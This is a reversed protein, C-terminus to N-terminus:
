QEPVAPPPTSRANPASPKPPSRDRRDTTWLNCRRRNTRRRIAPWLRSNKVSLVCRVRRNFDPLIRFALFHYLKWCVLTFTHTHQIHYLGSSVLCISQCPSVLRLPKPDETRTGALLFRRGAVYVKEHLERWLDSEAIVIRQFLAKRVSKVGSRRFHYLGGTMSPPESFPHQPHAPPSAIKSMPRRACSTPSRGRDYTRRGRRVMHPLASGRSPRL